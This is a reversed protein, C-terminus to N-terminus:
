QRRAEARLRQSSGRGRAEAEPKQRQDERCAVRKTVMRGFPVLLTLGRACSRAAYLGTSDKDEHRKVPPGERQSDRTYQNIRLDAVALPPKTNGHTRRAKRQGGIYQTHTESASLPQWHVDAAIDWASEQRRAVPDIGRRQQNDEPRSGGQGEGGGQPPSV